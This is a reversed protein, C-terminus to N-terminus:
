AATVKIMKDIKALQLLQRVHGQPQLISMVWGDKDAAELAIMFMGLGASDISVLDTLDFVAEKCGSKRIQDLLTRFVGHDAFAMRDALKVTFTSGSTETSIRM